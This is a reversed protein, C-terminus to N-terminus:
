LLSRKPLSNTEAPSTQESYKFFNLLKLAKLRYTNDQLTPSIEADKSEILLIIEQENMVSKEAPLPYGYVAKKIDATLSFFIGFKYYFRL